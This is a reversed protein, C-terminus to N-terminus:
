NGGSILGLPKLKNIWYDKIGNGLNNHNREIDEPYIVKGSGSGSKVFSVRGGTVLIYHGFRDNDGKYFRSLTGDEELEFGLEILKRKM